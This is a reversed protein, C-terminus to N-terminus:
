GMQRYKQRLSTVGCKYVKRYIACLCFSKRYGLAIHLPWYEGPKIVDYIRVWCAGCIFIVQEAFKKHRRHSKIRTNDAHSDSASVEQSILGDETYPYTYTGTDGREVVTTYLALINGNKNAISFSYFSPAHSTVWFRYDGCYSGDMWEMDKGVTLSTKSLNM